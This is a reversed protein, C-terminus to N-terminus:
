NSFPYYGHAQCYRLADFLDLGPVLLEDVLNQLDIGFLGRLPAGLMQAGEFAALGIAADFRVDLRDGAHHRDAAAGIGAGLADDPTRDLVHDVDAVAGHAAALVGPRRPAVVVDARGADVGEHRHLEGGIKLLLVDDEAAVLLEGLDHVLDLLQKREVLPDRNLGFARDAQDAVIDLRDGLGLRLLIAALRDHRNAALAEAAHRLRETVVDGVIGDAVPHEVLLCALRRPELARGVVDGDDAVVVDAAVGPGRADQEFLHSQAHDRLPRAVAANGLELGRGLGLEVYQVAVARHVVDRAVHFLLVANRPHSYLKKPGLLIASDSRLIALWKSSLILSPASRTM